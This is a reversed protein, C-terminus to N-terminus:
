IDIACFSANGYRIEKAGVGAAMEPHAKKFEATLKKVGMDPHALKFAGV